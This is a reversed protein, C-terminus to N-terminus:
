LEAAAADLDSQSSAEFAVTHDSPEGTFYVLTHDRDDSKFYTANSERYAVDLGLIETAFHTAQSLDSVGVRCYRIDRLSIM